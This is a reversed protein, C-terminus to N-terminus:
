GEKWCAQMLRTQSRELDNAFTMMDDAVASTMNNGLVRLRAMLGSLRASERRMEDGKAGDPMRGDPLLAQMALVTARQRKALGECVAVQREFEDLGTVDVEIEVREVQREDKAPKAATKAKRKAQKAM